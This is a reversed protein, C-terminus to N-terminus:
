YIGNGSVALTLIENENEIIIIDNYNQAKTPLFRVYIKISDLTGNLYPIYLKSREGSSWNDAVQFESPAIVTVNGNKPTLNEGSLIYSLDKMSDIKVNGFNVISTNAKFIGNEAMPETSHEKCGIFFLTILTLVIFLRM